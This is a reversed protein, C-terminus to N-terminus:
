HPEILLIIGFCCAILTNSSHVFNKSRFLYFYKINNLTMSQNKEDEIVNFISLM